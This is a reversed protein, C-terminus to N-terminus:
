FSCSKFYYNGAVYQDQDLNNILKGLDHMVLSSFAKDPGDFKPELGYLGNGMCLVYRCLSFEGSFGSGDGVVNHYFLNENIMTVHFDMRESCSLAYANFSERDNGDIKIPADFINMGYPNPNVFFDNMGDVIVFNDYEKGTEKNTNRQKGYWVSDLNHFSVVNKDLKVNSAQYVMKRAKFTGRGNVVEMVMRTEDDLSYQSTELAGVIQFYSEKESGDERDLLNWAYKLNVIYNSLISNITVSNAIQYDHILIDDRSPLRDDTSSLIISKLINSEVMTRNNLDTVNNIM